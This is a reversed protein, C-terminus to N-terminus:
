RGAWNDVVMIFAKCEERIRPFYKEGFELLLRIIYLDLTVAIQMNPRQVKVAVYEQNGGKFQAKYVQGLSAAAVPEKFSEVSNLFVDSLKKNFSKEIIDIALTSDFPPVQDQLKQLETIYAKSLLDPRVSIAQGIKIATPGLITILERVQDARLPANKEFENKSQDNLLGFIFPQALNFIELTRHVVVGPYKSYFAAIKNKDYIKPLNNRIETEKPAETFKNWLTVFVFIDLLLPIIEISSVGITLRLWVPLDAIISQYENNLFPLRSIDFTSLWEPGKFSTGLLGWDSVIHQFSVSLDHFESEAAPFKFSTPLFSFDIVKTPLSNDSVDFLKTSSFSSIRRHSTHTQQRFGGLFNVCSLIIVFILKMEM